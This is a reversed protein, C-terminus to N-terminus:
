AAALAAEGGDGGGLFGTVELARVLPAPPGVAAAARAATLGEVPLLAALAITLEAKEPAWPKHSLSM